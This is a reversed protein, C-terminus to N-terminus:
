SKPKEALNIQSSNVGERPRNWTRLHGTEVNSKGDVHSDITITEHALRLSTGEHCTTIICDQEFALGSLPHDDIKKSQFILDTVLEM